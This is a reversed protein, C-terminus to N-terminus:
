FCFLLILKPKDAVKDTGSSLRRCFFQILAAVACISKCSCINALLRNSKSIALSLCQPSCVFNPTVKWGFDGLAEIQASITTWFTFTM